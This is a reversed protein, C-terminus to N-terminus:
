GGLDAWIAMARDAWGMEAHGEWRVKDGEEASQQEREETQKDTVIFRSYAPM